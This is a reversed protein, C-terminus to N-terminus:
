PLRNFRFSMAVGLKQKREINATTTFAALDLGVHQSLNFGVGASPHWKERSYHGGVRPEIMGTRREYGLRMSTGNFGRVVNGM